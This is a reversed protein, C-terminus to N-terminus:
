NKEINLGAQLQRNQGVVANYQNVLRKYEEECAKNTHKLAKLEEKLQLDGKNEKNVVKFTLINNREFMACNSDDDDFACLINYKEKLEKLHKEKVEASPSYDDEPRMAVDFCDVDLNYRIFEEGIREVTEKAIRISRATSFVIRYGQEYFNHIIEIMRKEPYVHLGNAHRDFYEWKADGTLGQEEIEKFVQSSDLIVGDIDCIVAKEKM